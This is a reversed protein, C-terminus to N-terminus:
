FGTHSSRLGYLREQFVKFWVFQSLDNSFEALKRGVVLLKEFEVQLTRICGIQVRKQLSAL